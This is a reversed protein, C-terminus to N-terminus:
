GFSRAAEIAPQQVADIADLTPARQIEQQVIHMVQEVNYGGVRCADLISEKWDVAELNTIGWEKVM